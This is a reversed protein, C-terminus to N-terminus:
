PAYYLNAGLFEVYTSTTSRDLTIVWWYFRQDTVNHVAPLSCSLLHPGTVTSTDSDCTGIMTSINSGENAYWLAARVRGTTNMGDGDTYSMRIGNLKGDTSEVGWPCLFRLTGTSAANFRVGFGATEYKGGNVATSDPVCGAGIVSSWFPAAESRRAVGMVGLVLALLMVSRKM